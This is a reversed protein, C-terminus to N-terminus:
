KSVVMCAPQAHPSANSVRFQPFHGQVLHRVTNVGNGNLRTVQVAAGSAASPLEPYGPAQLLVQQGKAHKNDLLSCTTM